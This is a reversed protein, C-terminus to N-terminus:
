SLSGRIAPPAARRKKGLGASEDAGREVVIAHKRTKGAEGEGDHAVQAGDIEELDIARDRAHGGGM